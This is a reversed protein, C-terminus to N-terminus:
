NILSIENSLCLHFKHIAVKKTVYNALDLSFRHIKDLFNLNKVLELNLLCIWFWKIKQCLYTMIFSLFYLPIKQKEKNLYQFFFSFRAHVFWTQIKNKLYRLFSFYNKLDCVNKVRGVQTGFILHNQHHKSSRSSTM